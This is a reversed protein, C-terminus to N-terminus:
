FDGLPTGNSKNGLNRWTRLDVSTSIQRVSGDCLAAQVVDVHASDAEDYHDGKHPGIRTSFLTSPGGWAWGDSSRLRNITATKFIRRESVLIVNTTGDKIDDMSTTSNVGFVGVHLSHQTYPSFALGNAGIVETASLQAATLYWSQRADDNFVIGSGACGAYDNGGTQWTPDIRETAANNSVDMSKRNSPCYYFKIDNKAPYLTALDRTLWGIDGNARVNGDFRWYDFLTQQDMQPLIHVMWSTGHLGFYNQIDNGTTGNVVVLTQKPELPNCYNGVVNTTTGTVGGMGGGGGGGFSNGTIGIFQNALQGPPFVRHTDHYNHLALAIQKLNNQCSARQAAARAKQVAPLLLAVLIAIIAIVVLLEILTFGRVRRHRSM